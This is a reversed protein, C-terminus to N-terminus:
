LTAGYKLSAWVKIPRSHNVARSSEVWQNTPAIFGASAAAKMLAGLARPEHPTPNNRQEMLHWVDDTTFSTRELALDRIVFKALRKWEPNANEEVRTIAEDRAKRAVTKSWAGPYPEPCVKGRSEYWHRTCYTDFLAFTVHCNPWICPSM